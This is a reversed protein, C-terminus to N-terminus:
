KAAVFGCPIARRLFQRIEQDDIMADIESLKIPKFVVFELWYGDNSKVGYGASNALWKKYTNSFVSRSSLQFKARMLHGSSADTLYEVSFQFSM